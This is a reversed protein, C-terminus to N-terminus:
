EHSESWGFKKRLRAYDDNSEASNVQKAVNTIEGMRVFIKFLFQITSKLEALSLIRESGYLRTVIHAADEDMTMSSNLAVSGHCIRNRINLAEVLKSHVSDVFEKHEPREGSVEFQLDKWHNLTQSISHTKAEPIGEGRFEDISRKLAQEVQSWQIILSGINEYIDSIGIFKEGTLAAKDTKTM